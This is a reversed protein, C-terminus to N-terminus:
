LYLQFCCSSKQGKLFLYFWFDVFYYSVAKVRLTSIMVAASLLKNKSKKKKAKNKYKEPFILIPMAHSNSAQCVIWM